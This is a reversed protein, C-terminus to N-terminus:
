QKTPIDENSVDSFDLTDFYAIGKTRFYDIDFHKERNYTKAM